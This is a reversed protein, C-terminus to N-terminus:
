GDAAWTAGSRTGVLGDTPAGPFVDLMGETMDRALAAAVPGESGEDCEAVLEDHVVALPVARGGAEGLAPLLRGLAAVMAEAAGGQVPYNYAKGGAYGGDIPCVRGCPTRAVGDRRAEAGAREQWDRLEPYALFWAERHDEAEALTMGVGYDSLATRRLGAAGQGYLLGFSVAKALQREERTVDAGEKGLIGAATARHVDAGGRFADLMAGGGALLAAVRLEMQSYDAVVLRRGPPAAFLRRFEPDRPVSQLNFDACSMRGTVAGGLRFAARVRGGRGAAALKDGYGSIRHSAERLPVLVERLLDGEEPPLVLLNALLADRSVELNGTKTRPWEGAAWDLVGALWSGVQVPSSPKVGPVAGEWEALLGDRESRLRAMLAAHAKADFPMGALEMAAVAGQAARMIGYARSAGAREVREVLPAFLRLALGARAAARAVGDAPQGSTEDGPGVGLHERALDDLGDLRGTVVQGALMTCNPAAIDVGAAALARACSVGDHCVADLRGIEGSLRGLGGVAGAELVLSPGEAPVVLVVAAPASRAAVGEGGTVVGLGVPAGSLVGLAELAEARGSPRVGADLSVPAPAPVSTPAARAVPETARAAGDGAVRRRPAGERPPRRSLKRRGRPGPLEPARAVPPAEPSSLSTAEGGPEAPPAEGDATGGSSGATPQDAGAEGPDAGSSPADTGRSPTPPETGSAARADGAPPKGSAPAQGGRLRIEIIKESSGGRRIGREVSVGLEELVPGAQGLLISLRSPNKPFFRDRGAAEGAREALARLLETATGSWLGGPRGAVLGRVLWAVPSQDAAADMAARRNIRYAAVFGGEPLGLAREAATGWRAFDAMRLEPPPRPAGPLRRLGEAVADLLCGLVGPALRGLAEGLEREGLRAGRIRPLSLRLTRDALDARAAAPNIGNLVVPRLARFVVEDSDTYLRRSAYATATSMGCLLDAIEPSLGSLNDYALVRSHLARVFVDRESRPAPQVDARSPDVMARVVRVLTTKGSGAEGDVALIPFPGDPQLSFAMWARLVAFQEDSGVNAVGRLGDLSGGREPVPLEGTSAGRRFRVPPDEVVRWGGAAVEVARWGADALDVYVAGGSGAVRLHVAHEEGDLAMAGLTNRATALAEGSAGRGTAGYYAASLRRGYAGSDVRWHERHGGGDFTAYANKDEDHWFEDTDAVLDLVVDAPNQEKGGGRRSRGAGGSSSAKGEAPDARKGAPDAKGEAPYRAAVDGALARVEEDGLPPRCRERNVGLLEEAIREGDWALTGRRSCALRFLAERRSGEHIEDPLDTAARRSGGDKTGGGKTRRWRVLGVIGEPLTPLRGLDAQPRGRPWGYARGSAHLSPPAVIYGGDGRFDVGPYGGIGTGNRVEGGGAPAAYLIHFGGGGTKSVYPVKTLDFRRQIVKLSAVGDPHDLDLVYWGSPRGTPIGVNAGPHERWWGAIRDRDTTAGRHGGRLVPHKGPNECEPGGCTCLGDARIGHVPFVPIGHAAYDLAEELIGM